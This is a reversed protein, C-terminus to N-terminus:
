QDVDRLTLSIRYSVDGYNTRSLIKVEAMPLLLVGRRVQHPQNVGRYLPSQENQLLIFYHPGLDVILQLQQFLLSICFSLFCSSHYFKIKIKFFFFILLNLSIAFVQHKRRFNCLLYFFYFLSFRLFNRLQTGNRQNNLHKVFFCM